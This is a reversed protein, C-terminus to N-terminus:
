RAGPYKTKYYDQLAKMSASVEAPPQEDVSTDLNTNGHFGHVGLSIPKSPDAIKAKQAAERIGASHIDMTGMNPDPHILAQPNLLAGNAGDAAQMAANQAEHRQRSLESLRILDNTNIFNQVM